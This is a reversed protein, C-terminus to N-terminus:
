SNNDGRIERFKRRAEIFYISDQHNFIMKEYLPKALDPQKLQQEYIEASFFLAEDVYIGEAHVDLIQKYLRLAETYNGLKENIKGMRLLTVSEIEDGKHETLIKTFQALALDNKNQYMLYDGRAFKKLAVQASDAVTNDNILLFYEMADNAILQTSASKLIKFQSQAWQFDGQFYSTKAVKLSAEHGIQDNKLDDEIQSYYILAQNYQEQLLLIDALQMKLQAKQYENLQFKLANKLVDKGAEPDNLNFALFAAQLEQLSITFPSVGFKKLAIELDTKILVYEKATSKEIRNRLLFATAFIQLDINETNELVFNIISVADDDQNEEIALEALSVINSFSEPNRKYIAKEQIFAKGYEKQQVFFWSLFQNWYVDQSKQTRVILAKRLRDAFSDDSVEMMFRSLYNQIYITNQPNKEGDELFKEIMLDVKGQQGYLVAMQQNFNFKPELTLALNYAKLAYDLVSKKEFSAAIAYVNSANDNIKDIAKDYFKLANKDDKQLQYNYGLEILLNPQKYKDLRQQILDQAKEFQSLQQYCEVTRQFYTSNGPQNALLEEYSVLAKEFDGKEFYNAALQENQAFALFTFLSLVIALIKRM